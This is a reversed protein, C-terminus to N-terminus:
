FPIRLQGDQEVIGKVIRGSKSNRANIWQGPKGDQLAEGEAVLRMGNGEVVMALSQGQRIVPAVRFLDQRLAFGAPINSALVQGLAMNTDSLVGAPLSALDQESLRLDGSTLSHGQALPRTAVVVLTMLKVSVPVYLTWSAPAQCRVQITRAARNASGFNQMELKNCQALQLRKDIPGVQILPRGSQAPLSQRVFGEVQKGIAQLDQRPASWAPSGPVLLLSAALLTFFLRM